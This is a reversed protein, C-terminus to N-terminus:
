HLGEPLVPEAVVDPVRVAAEGPYVAAAAAALATKPRGRSGQGPHYMAPLPGTPSRLDVAVAVLPNPWPGAQLSGGAPGLQTTLITRLLGFGRYVGIEPEARRAEGEINILLINEIGIGASPRLRLSLGLSSPPAPLSHWPGRGHCLGRDLSARALPGHPIGPEAM